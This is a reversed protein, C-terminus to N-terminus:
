AVVDPEGRVAGLASRAQPGSLAPGRGAPVAPVARPRPGLSHCPAAGRPAPLGEHAGLRRHDRRRAPGRCALAAAAPPGAGDPPRDHQQASGRSRGGPLHRGAAATEAAGPTREPRIARPDPRLARTAPPAARGAEAAVAFGEAVGRFRFVDVDVGAARLFDVQRPIFTAPGGWRARDPWDSTIMLVRIPAPMEPEERGPAPPGACM